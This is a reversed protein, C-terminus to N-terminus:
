PSLEAHVHRIAKAIYDADAKTHNMGIPLSVMRSVLSNTRPFDEERWGKAPWRRFRAFPSASAAHAKAKVCYERTYQCYTGTQKECNVNLASLRDRFAHALRPTALYFYIEIGSDGRPDPRKRLEIGRLGAIRGLIREQVGRCHNRVRDLKRLQALGVAAQMETMRFQSGCFSPQSPKVFQTHYGRVQGLDHMRVAREYLVPDGTVVMGGEGCTMSKQFQFSFIGMDGWAGVRKGRYKAGPSEACDELLFIGAKRTERRLAALDGALGQYHVVMAAKTRRTKLRTIEGPALSLSEDVEALVPLAGVRVVATFCSIWSWVPIIVEDGPGIGMAGLAVELAATGSTVALAYKVGMKARFEREFTSAMAPPRKPDPGYYRFLERRRVVQMLLKEEERGILAAGLGLPPRPRLRFPPRSKPLVSM